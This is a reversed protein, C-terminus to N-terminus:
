TAVREDCIGCLASPGYCRYRSGLYNPRMQHNQDSIYRDHDNSQVDFQLREDHWALTVAGSPLACLDSRFELQSAYYAGMAEPSPAKSSYAMGCVSCIVVNVTRAQPFQDPLLLHHTHLTKQESSGCVPCPRQVLGEGSVADAANM